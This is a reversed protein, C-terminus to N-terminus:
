ITTIMRFHDLHTLFLGGSSFSFNFYPLTSFLFFKFYPLPSYYILGFITLIYISHFTNVEPVISRCTYKIFIGHKLNIIYFMYKSSVNFPHSANSHLPLQCSTGPVCGQRPLSLANQIDNQYLKCPVIITIPISIVKPLFGLLWFTDRESSLTLM